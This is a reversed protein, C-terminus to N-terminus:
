RELAAKHGLLPPKPGAFLALCGLDPSSNVWFYHKRELFPALCGSIPRESTTTPDGLLHHNATRSFHRAGLFSAWFTGFAMSLHRRFTGPVWSARRFRELFRFGRSYIVWFLHKPTRFPTQCREHNISSPDGENASPRFDLTQIFFHGAGLFGLLAPVSSIRRHIQKRPFLTDSFLTRILHWAGLFSTVRILHWAGLFSTVSEGLLPTKPSPLTLPLKRLQRKLSM